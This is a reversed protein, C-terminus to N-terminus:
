RHSDSILPAALEVLVCVCMCVSECVFPCSHTTYCPQLGQIVSAYVFFVWLFGAYQKTGCIRLEMWFVSLLCCACLCASMCEYVVCCCFLNFHEINTCKLSIIYCTSVLGIIHSLSDQTMVHHLVCTSCASYIHFTLHKEKGSSFRDVGIDCGGDGPVGTTITVMVLGCVHGSVRWACACFMTVCLIHSHLCLAYVCRNQQKNTDVHLLSVESILIYQSPAVMQSVSDGACTHISLTVIQVLRFLLCDDVSVHGWHPFGALYVLWIWWM